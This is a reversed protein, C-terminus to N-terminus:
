PSTMTIGSQSRKHARDQVEECKSSVESRHARFARCREEETRFTDLASPVRKKKIQHNTQEKNQQDKMWCQGYHHSLLNSMSSNVRTSIGHTIDPLVPVRATRGQQTNGIPESAVVRGTGGRQARFQTIEKATVLGSRAADRNLSVYDPGAQRGASGSQVRWSSLTEAVGGDGSPSSIGYTYDPPPLSFGRTQTQGVPVKILLPNTRMSQRVVGLRPSSM